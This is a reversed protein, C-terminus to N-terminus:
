DSLLRALLESRNSVGLKNYIQRSHSIATHETIGLRNAIENYAHGLAMFVSVEAQRGSLPLDRVRRLLRAPLPERRSIAIGISGATDREPELYHARFSFRGWTTDTWWVPPAAAPREAHISHLTECIHRVPGPLELRGHLGPTHRSVKDHSVLFLFYRAKQSTWALKGTADVIALGEEGSDVWGYDNRRQHLLAHALFGSLRSLRKAEDTTFASDDVARHMVLVGPRHEGETAVLHLGWHFGLKSLIEDYFEGNLFRRRDVKLLEDFDMARTSGRVFRRWGKFVELERQNYFEGLYLPVIDAAEPREDYLNTFDGNEDCWFFTNAYSPVFQHIERLVAPIAVQDSLGLCCLQQITSEAKRTHSTPSDSVSEKM